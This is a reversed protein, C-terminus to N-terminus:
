CSSKLSDTSGHHGLVNGGPEYGYWIPVTLPPVDERRDLDRRHARWRSLGATRRESMRLWARLTGVALGSSSM